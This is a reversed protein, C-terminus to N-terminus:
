AGEAPGRDRPAFTAECRSYFNLSEKSRAESAKPCENAKPGKIFIM